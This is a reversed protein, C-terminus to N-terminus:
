TTKLWELGVHRKIDLKLDRKVEEDIRLVGDNFSTGTNWLQKSGTLDRM